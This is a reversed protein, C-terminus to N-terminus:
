GARGRGVAIERMLDPCLSAVGAALPGVAPPTVAPPERAPLSPDPQWSLWWGFGLRSAAVTRPLVLSM